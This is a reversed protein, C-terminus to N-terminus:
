PTKKIETLVNARGPKKWTLQRASPIVLFKPSHTQVEYSAKVALYTTAQPASPVTKTKESMAISRQTSSMSLAISSTIERTRAPGGFTSEKTSDRCQSPKYNTHSVLTLQIYWEGLSKFLRDIHHTTGTSKGQLSHSLVIKKLEDSLESWSM